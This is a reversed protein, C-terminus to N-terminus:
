SSAIVVGVSSDTRLAIAKGLGITSGGGLAVLCDARLDSVVQMAADTVDVPTHMTAGSFMGVALDGLSAKLMEVTAAQQPTSLLLARRCGLAAIEAGLQSLTGFGFTVKSPLAAYSFSYM